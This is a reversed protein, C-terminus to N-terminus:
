VGLHSLLQKLLNTTDNNTEVVSQRQQEIFLDYLDKNAVAPNNFVTDTPPNNIIDSVEKAYDIIDAIGAAPNAFTQEPINNEITQYATVVETSRSYNLDLTFAALEEANINLSLAKDFADQLNGDFFKKAVESVNNLLNNIAEREGDDLEGEVTYNFESTSSINLQSATIATNGNSASAQNFSFSSFSAINISVQDGDQTEIQISTQRSLQDSTSIFNAQNNVIGFENRAGDDVLQQLGSLEDLGTFILARTEDIESRIDDSLNGSSSLIGLADNVGQEVGERALSLLNQREVDTSARADLANSVFSLVREAVKQPSFETASTTAGTNPEAITAEITQIGATKQLSSNLKSELLSQIKTFANNENTNSKLPKFLNAPEFNGPLIASVLADM